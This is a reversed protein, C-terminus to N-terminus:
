SRQEGGSLGLAEAVRRKLSDPVEDRCRKAVVHRLEVEFDFAGLCPSCEDLHHRILARREDTLEGDLYGYLQEVAKDCDRGSM